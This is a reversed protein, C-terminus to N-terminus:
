AHRGGEESRGEGTWPALEGLLWRAVEAFRGGEMQWSGAKRLVRGIHVEADLLRGEAAEARELLPGLVTMAAGVQTDCVKCRPCRATSEDLADELRNRVGSLSPGSRPRTSEPASALARSTDDPVPAGPPAQLRQLAAAVTKLAAFEDASLM